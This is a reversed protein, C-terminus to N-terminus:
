FFPALPHSLPTKPGGCSTVPKIPTAFMACLKFALVFFLPASYDSCENSCAFFSAAGGLLTSLIHTPVFFIRDPKRKKGKTCRYLFLSCLSFYPTRQSCRLKPKRMQVWLFKLMAMCLKHKTQWPCECWVFFLQSFFPKWPVLACAYSHFALCNKCFFTAKKYM